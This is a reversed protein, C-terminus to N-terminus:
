KNVGNNRTGLKGGLINPAFEIATTKDLDSCLLRNLSELESYIGALAQRRTTLDHLAAVYGIADKIKLLQANVSPNEFLAVGYIRAMLRGIAESTERNDMGFVCSFKMAQEIDFHLERYVERKEKRLEFNYTLKRQWWFVLTAVVLTVFATILYGVIM